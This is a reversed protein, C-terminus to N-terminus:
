EASGKEPARSGALKEVAVTLRELQDAIRAWADAQRELNELERMRLAEKSAM